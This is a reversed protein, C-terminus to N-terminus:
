RGDRNGEIRGILKRVEEVWIISSSVVIIILWEMWTLATTHLISQMPAAYIAVIQLIIVVITAVVLYLNSFPNMKFVSEDDSRCNWANFWQFVALATLAITQAKVLDTGFYERFLLLTGITMPIAMLFMRKIMLPDVFSHEASRFKSRLLGKEKPELALAVVLFGDTVFNLWIIQPALVPLPYLLLLAAVVTFVEGMSTSFLYLIVKKITKYINRGEGIASVISAFNDDLLVIDSAEKAVETGIKGMAVGLDAAVLSPADNVGDGTMAIIKGMKKYIKIIRLKHEPNVRAFVTVKDLQDVLEDDSLSDLNKGTLIVDGQKFIGVEEAISRATIEYDGTIMVVKIGSCTAKKVAKSAEPRAADKMGYFGAFVMGPMDKFDCRDPLNRCVAFAIVRLGRWSMEVFVTELEKRKKDSMEENRENRWIRESMALVTEPAGVVAFFNGKDNKYFFSHYKSKYDFPKEYIFPNKELIKEKDFGLKQSFVKLAAETPDGSVQWQKTEELYSLNANSSLAALNGALEIEPYSEASVKKGGLMIEGNPDYGVGEVSFTKGNSYFEKVVMENKTITGTKDVAIIDAQGLAEVAQLRKVLANRKSMRWVGTALVLTMVIPLGEPIISVSLSVLVIFMEEITRGTLVGVFLLVADIVAVAAIIFRSFDELKAKLPIEADIGSVEKSIRGVVTKTGIATVIGKGKGSVVHTGKFVMNSQEAVALNEQVLVDSTKHVPVSEGTLVSEDIELNVSSIIRADAPVKEGERLLIIDGRVVEDDRVVIERGERMVTANTEVFKKLALLTNQAKGEQAAGVVANLFIVALIILGDSIQKLALVILSAIILIYILPSKFQRIFIDMASDAKAEPLKNQGQSRLREVAEESSLGQEKSDLSKFVDQISKAYFNYDM